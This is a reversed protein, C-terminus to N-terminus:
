KPPIHGAKMGTCHHSPGDGQSESKGETLERQQQDRPIATSTDGTAQNLFWYFTMIILTTSILTGRWIMAQYAAATETGAKSAVLSTLTSSSHNTATNARQFKGHHISLM